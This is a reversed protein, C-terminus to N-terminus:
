NAGIVFLQQLTQEHKKIHFFFRQEIKVCLVNAASVNFMVM